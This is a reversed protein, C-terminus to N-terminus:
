IVIYRNEHDPEPISKTASAGADGEPYNCAVGPQQGPVSVAAAASNGNMLSGASNMVTYTDETRRGVSGISSQILLKIRISYPYQLGPPLSFIGFGLKNYLWGCAGLSSNGCHKAEDSHM